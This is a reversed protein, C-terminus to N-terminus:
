FTITDGDVIIPTRMRRIRKEVSSKRTIRPAPEQVPAPRTETVSAEMTPADHTPRTRRVRAPAPEEDEEEVVPAPAYAEMLVPAAHVSYEVVSPLKPHDEIWKRLSPLDSTWFMGIAKDKWRMILEFYGGLTRCLEMSVVRTKHAPAYEEFVELGGSSAMVEGQRMILM